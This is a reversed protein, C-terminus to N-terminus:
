WTVGDDMRPRFIEPVAAGPTADTPDDTAVDPATQRRDEVTQVASALEAALEATESEPFGDIM